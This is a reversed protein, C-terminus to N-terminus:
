DNIINKSFCWLLNPKEGCYPCVEVEESYHKECKGCYRYGSHHVYGPTTLMFEKPYYDEAFKM